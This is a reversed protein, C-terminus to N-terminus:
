SALFQKGLRIHKVRVVCPHRNFLHLTNQWGVTMTSYLPTKGGSLSFRRIKKGGGVKLGVDM